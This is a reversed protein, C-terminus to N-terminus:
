LNLKSAVKAIKPRSASGLPTSRNFSMLPTTGSRPPTSVGSRSPTLHASRSPTGGNRSPTSSKMMPSHAYDGETDGNELRRSAQGLEVTRVRQAFNLSCVTESQNKEVPAVQVIMLTKSDGGLSDQLLYTLRSNRYPVHSQRSRLAHIVDGLSSLSKNISQAEKLRTGDAGSKSVRESGALDVLNLKGTSQVNTTKNVGAVTVCLLAHSRSSHENMNTTATARNKQGTAFVRNVDEVSQVEKVCLGPVHLQGDTNMKIDLKTYTDDGTVLLDRIVENYIELVTVTIKYTWDCGRSSTERFLERLARQNIGADDPPGEMTYTKGSGTQGYAFICVNYGDICSTVLSQVENFVQIQTSTETFVRDVEFTQSRGKNNVHILGDDDQDYTVVSQSMTGHGDESIKPRVRCFVRINGKLEVLENHFKKRLAMERHYKKILEQNYDNIGRIARTTEKKVQSVTEKIVTPFKKAQKQLLVYERVLQVMIPKLQEVRLCVDQYKMRLTALELELDHRVSRVAEEKEKRVSDIEDMLERTVTETEQELRTMEHMKEQCQRCAEQLQGRVETVELQLGEVETQLLAKEEQCRSYNRKLDESETQVEVRKIKTIVEPEKAHLATLEAQLERMKRATAQSESRLTTQEQRHKNQLTALEESKRTLQNELTTIKQRLKSVEEDLQQYQKAGQKVMDTSQSYVQKLDTMEEQLRDNEGQLKDVQKETDTTCPGTDSSQGSKHLRDITDRLDHNEKQLDTVTKDLGLGHEGGPGQPEQGVEKGEPNPVTFLQIQEELRRTLDVKEGQLRKVEEILRMTTRGGTHPINNNDGLPRCKVPGQELQQVRAENEELLGQLNSILNEKEQLQTEQTKCLIKMHQRKTSEERELRSKYHKTKDTLTKVKFLLEDRQTNREDLERQLARYEVLSINAQDDHSGEDRREPHDTQGNTFIYLRQQTNRDQYKRGCFCLGNHRLTVLM